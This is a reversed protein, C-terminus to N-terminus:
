KLVFTVADTVEQPNSMTNSGSEKKWRGDVGGKAFTAQLYERMQAGEESEKKFTPEGGALRIWYIAAFNESRTGTKSFSLAGSRFRCLVCVIKGDPRSLLVVQHKLGPAADLFATAKLDDTVEFRQKLLAKVEGRDAEAKRLGSKVLHAELKAPDGLPASASVGADMHYSMGFIWIGAVIAIVVVLGIVIKM